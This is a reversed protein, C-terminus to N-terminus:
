RVNISSALRSVVIPGRAQPTAEGWNLKSPKIGKQGPYATIFSVITTNTLPIRRQEYKLQFM